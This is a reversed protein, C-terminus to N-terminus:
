YTFIVRSGAARCAESPSLKKFIINAPYKRLCYPLRRCLRGHRYGACGECGNHAEETRYLDKARGLRFVDGPEMIKFLGTDIM